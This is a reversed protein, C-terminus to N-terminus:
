DLDELAFKLKNKLGLSDIMEHEDDKFFHKEESSADLSKM